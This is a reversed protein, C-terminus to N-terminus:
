AMAARVADLARSQVEALSGPLFAGSAKRHGGGGFQEAIRSCDAQCRSRFSIKFGGGPQEVFIVAFESGGAALTMNIIDESDSSLAGAADFDERLLWTYVLRGGLEEQVRSLAYGILRLRGLSENEYLEKYLEHPVAGADVLAAALRLTQSTTSAFRFWGTDTAVAAFLPGAMDATITVGLQEAAEVVLRGTAEASTDKFLEAGLDDQSVHHDLVVKKARTTRIVDAMEGLQAWATTDLIMVVDFSETAQRALDPTLRQLCMERDLFRLNPPLDFPNAIHVEKGLQRLISAMGLESGVADCDPRVHTTLLFRRHQDVLRVFRGWAVASPQSDVPRSLCPDLM